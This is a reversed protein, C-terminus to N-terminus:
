LREGHQFMLFATGTAILAFAVFLLAMRKHWLRAIRGKLHLIGTLVTLLALVTGSWAATLHIGLYTSEFHWYSGVREAFWVAIGFCVVTAVAFPVHVRRNGRFGTWLDIGILLVTLGLFLGLYLYPPEGAPALAGSEQLPPIM